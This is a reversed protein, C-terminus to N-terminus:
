IYMSVIGDYLIGYGKGGKVDCHHKYIGGISM